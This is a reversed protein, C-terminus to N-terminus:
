RRSENVAAESKRADELYRCIYQFAQIHGEMFALDQRIAEQLEEPIEDSPYDALTADLNASLGQYFAVQHDRRIATEAMRLWHEIHFNRSARIQAPNLPTREPDHFSRLRHEVRRARTRDM